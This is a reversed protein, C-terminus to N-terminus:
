RINLPTYPRGSTGSGGGIWHQDGPTEAATPDLERVLRWAEDARARADVYTRQAQKAQEHAATVAGTDTVGGSEHDIRLLEANVLLTAAKQSLEEARTSLATARDHAAAVAATDTDDPQVDLEFPNAAHAFVAVGLGEVLDDLPVDGPGLAQGHRIRVPAFLLDARRSLRHFDAPAATGVVTAPLRADDILAAVREQVQRSEGATLGNSGSGELEVRVEIHAGRWRSQRTCMWALMTMLRGTHDDSWWVSITPATGPGFRRTRRPLREWGDDPTHVIGVSCGHRIATHIMSGHDPANQRDGDAAEFWSTLALNARLAGIGHAQLMASVGADLTEAAVVRGYVVGRGDANTEGNDGRREWDTLERQLELDIRGAIRRAMPGKGPVIRAITTFGVGGELWGSVQRLRQRRVPDRPAFAVTCPRWDRTTETQASLNRLQSRLSSAYFGSTSDVWRAQQVTRSLYRYLWLLAAGAVAGALPNIAVIAGLCALTGALSLRWDFLRFSPRFSTSAARAESYTAYNIMGYSALFFMSIVPAVLNLDGLAVAALAIGASLLAGRRPNDTPGAGVAFAELPKVLRDAALRQLTRPAGMISAIASSFTAAVVGVDILWPAVSLDRMITTNSELLALPVAMALTLIVLLYVVTSVAIAGFTGVSISRSPTKLDGSMAVGQTFGTIAPFFIAFGVWFTRNGESGPPPRLNDVILSPQLDDIVGVFYGIIAVVLSAMVLYQFKTAIDAGLWALGLLVVIAAAAVLRPFGPDTNQVVSAMAEGLGIAYFAISISMALYLLLGIAGGFAPGLTRSIIFYVGGGGVKLNTALAALSFTTLVSVATSLALITLMEILGVTGTVYGLRLFLVLGLITLVSPTFVGGFTSLGAGTAHNVSPSASANNATSGKM